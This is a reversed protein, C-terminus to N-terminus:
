VPPSNGSVEITKVSFELLSILVNILFTYMKSAVININRSYYCRQFRNCYNIM